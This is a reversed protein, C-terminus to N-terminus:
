LSIVGTRKERERLEEDKEMVKYAFAKRARNGVFFHMVFCYVFIAFFLTMLSAVIIYIVTTLGTDCDIPEGCVVFEDICCYTCGLSELFCFTVNNM